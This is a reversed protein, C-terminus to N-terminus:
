KQGITCSGFYEAGEDVILFQAVIDGHLIASSKLHLTGNVTIDGKFTGMIIADKTSITGEINGTEGMVLKDQCNLIGKISGDVRINTNSNVTGELNTGEAIVCTTGKDASHPTAQANIRRTDTTPKSKTGLM